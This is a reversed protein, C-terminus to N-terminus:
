LGVLESVFNLSKQNTKYNTGVMMSEIRGNDRRPASKEHTTWRTVGSHLGWANEGKQAMEVRIMEYLKEMANYSRTSVESLTDVSSLRSIGVLHEVLKHADDNSVEREYMERYKDTMIMSMELSEEILQPIMKMKETLSASHQMRNKANKKFYYFQNSCSMTFDGIGVSLSASGDNSDLVTVYRKVKDNGVTSLGDIGLQMFVRRGGDLSGAKSVSLEGFKSMGELVLRVIDENQSVTYGKKVTNIIEGTKSNYLGFYPTSVMEVDDIINGGEDVSTFNRPAVMPLKEITFDLGNERLIESVRLDSM